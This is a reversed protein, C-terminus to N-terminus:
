GSPAPLGSAIQDLSVGAPLRSRLEAIIARQAKVKQHADTYKLLLNSLEEEAARIQEYQRTNVAVPANAADMASLIITANAGAPLEKRASELDAEVEKINQDVYTHAEAADKRQQEKSSERVQDMYANALEVSSRPDAGFADVNVIDSGREPRTVIRWSLASGPVPPTMREGLRKFVEPSSMLGVITQGSPKAPRYADTAVPPEYAMLQASASYNTKWMWLGLVVGLLAGGFCGLLLWYWRRSAPRLLSGADILFTPKESPAPAAASPARTAPNRRRPNNGGPGRDYDHTPGPAGDTEAYNASRDNYRNM